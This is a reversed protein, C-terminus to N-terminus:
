SGASRCRRSTVLRPAQRRIAGESGDLGIIQAPVQLVLRDPGRAGEGPAGLADLGVEGGPALGQVPGRQRDLVGAIDEM